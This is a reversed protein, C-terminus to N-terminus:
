IILNQKHNRIIAQELMQISEEETDIITILAELYHKLEAWDSFDVWDVLDSTLDSDTNDTFGYDYAVMRGDAARGIQGNDNTTDNIADLQEIIDYITHLTSILENQNLCHLYDAGEEKDEEDCDVHIGIYHSVEEIFDDRYNDAYYRLYNFCEVREMIEVYHGLFYIRALFEDGYKRYVNAEINTQNIGALGVAVKVVYLGSPEVPIGCAIIDAASVFIVLRSAGSDKVTYKDIIIQLLNKEQESSLLNIKNM